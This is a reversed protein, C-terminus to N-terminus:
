SLAMDRGPVLTFVFPAEWISGAGLSFNLAPNPIDNPPRQGLLNWPVAIVEPVDELFLREVPFQLFEVDWLDSSQPCEVHRELSQIQLM